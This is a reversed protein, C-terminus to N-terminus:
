DLFLIGEGILDAVLRIFYDQTKRTKQSFNELSFPVIKTIYEMLEDYKETRKNIISLAGFFIYFKSKLCLKVAEKESNNYYHIYYFKNGVEIPKDLDYTALRLFGGEIEDISLRLKNESNIQGQEILFLLLGKVKKDKVQDLMAKAIKNVGVPRYIRLITYLLQYEDFTISVKDENIKYKNVYRMKDLMECMQSELEINEEQVQVMVDDFRKNYFSEIKDRFHGIGAVTTKGCTPKKLRGYIIELLISRYLCNKFYSLITQNEAKSFKKNLYEYNYGMCMLRRKVRTWTNSFNQQLLSRRIEEKIIEKIQEIFQNKNKIM